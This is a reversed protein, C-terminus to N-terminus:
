TSIYIPTPQVPLNQTMGRSNQPVGRTVKMLTHPSLFDCFNRWKHFISVAVCPKRLTAHFDHFIAWFHGFVCYFVILHNNKIKSNIRILWMNLCIWNIITMRMTRHNNNINVAANNLKTKPQDRKNMSYVPLRKCNWMLRNLNILNRHKSYKISKSNRIWIVSKIFIKKSIKLRNICIRKTKYWPWNTHISQIKPM